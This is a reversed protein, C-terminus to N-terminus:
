QGLGGTMSRLRAVTEALTSREDSGQRLFAEIAPRAAVARDIEANAGATYAGIRILDSSDEYLSWLRRLEVADAQHQRDAVQTMLRSLSRRPDIPPYHGREALGRALVIHGDLISRVADSVPENLDDGDVLVTYFATISGRASQGARELLRPLEAFVSPTYGRTTPPEGVALGVVRRARAYRTVSDMIFLVDKGQDRFYEAVATGVQAARIRVRAPEDSTAAVVVSRALAQPGLTEDIFQRVERGREGVLAIVIVEAESARALLGLLTSKGVGSGAFIGVRQGRGVTCLADIARVGTGLARTIAPRELPSPPRREVERRERGVPGLGDIPRGLGDLVRGLVQPGLEVAFPRDDAVVRAGPGVQRAEGLPMLLVRGDRFGVVEAPLPGTPTHVDARDGVKTRPGLSEIMLGTLRTVRGVALYPPTSRAAQALAGLLVDSTTEPAAERALRDLTSAL